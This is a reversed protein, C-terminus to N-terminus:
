HRNRTVNLLERVETEMKQFMVIINCFCIEDDVSPYHVFPFKLNLHGSRCPCGPMHKQQKLKRIRVARRWRMFAARVSRKHSRRSPLGDMVARKFDERTGTEPMM